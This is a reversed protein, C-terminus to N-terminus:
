IYKPTPTLLTHALSASGSILVEHNILTHPRSPRYITKMNASQTNKIRELIGLEFRAVDYTREKIEKQGEFPRNIVRGGQETNCGAWGEGVM